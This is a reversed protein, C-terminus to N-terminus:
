NTVFISRYKCRKYETMDVSRVLVDPGVMSAEYTIALVEDLGPGTPTLM